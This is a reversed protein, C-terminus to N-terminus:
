LIFIKKRDICKVSSGKKEGDIKTSLWCKKLEEEHYTVLGTAPDAIHFFYKNRKKRIKYCVVFHRQQWHLICPLPVDEILQQFSIRVGSTRFGISEAADSIGLMSVGERTIFSRDRLTQLSYIKGYYRSIMRLCTPGCDM